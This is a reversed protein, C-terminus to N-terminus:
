LALDNSFVRVIPFVSPLLLLPRCLILHNTPMVLKISMLKLLSWPSPCPLRAHQLGYPRLSDSLGSRSFLLFVVYPAEWTASTTFFGAALASSVLSM